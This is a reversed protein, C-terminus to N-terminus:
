RGGIGSLDSLRREIEERLEEIKQDAIREFESALEEPTPGEVVQDITIPVEVNGADQDAARNGARQENRQARQQFRQVESRAMSESVPDVQRPTRKGGSTQNLTSSLGELWGPVQIEPPFNEPTQLKPPYREPVDLSPPWADPTELGIEVNGSALDSLQGGFDLLKDPQIIPEGGKNQGSGGTISPQAFHEPGLQDKLTGRAESGVAGGLLPLGIAAAMTGGTALGSALMGGGSGLGRGAGVGKLFGGSGDATSAGIKELEDHIDNLTELQAVQVGGGAAAGVMGGGGGEGGGTPETGGGRSLASGLLRGGPIARELQRKLQRGFGRTDLSPTVESAEGLAQELKGSERDLQRDDMEPRVIGVLERERAM